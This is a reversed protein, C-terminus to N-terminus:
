TVVILSSLRAPRPGPPAHFRGAATSPALVPLLWAAAVAYNTVVTFYGFYVLARTAYDPSLSAPGYGWSLALGLLTVAGALLRFPRIM